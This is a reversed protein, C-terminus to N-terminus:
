GDWFSFERLFLNIESLTFLKFVLDFTESIFKMFCTENRNKSSSGRRIDVQLSLFSLYFILSAKSHIFIGFRYFHNNQVFLSAGIKNYPEERSPHIQAKWMLIFRLFMNELLFVLIQQYWQMTKNKKNSKTTLSAHYFYIKKEWKIFSDFTKKRKTSVPAIKGNKNPFSQETLYRFCVVHAHFVLTLPLRPCFYPFNSKKQKNM